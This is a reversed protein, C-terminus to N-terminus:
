EKAKEKGAPEPIADPAVRLTVQFGFDKKVAGHFSERNGLWLPDLAADPAFEASVIGCPLLTHAHAAAIFFRQQLTLKGAPVVLSVPGAHDNVSLDEGGAVTHPEVGITVFATNGACVCATADSTEATGFNWECFGSRHSRLAGFERAELILRVPRAAAPDAFSIEFDQALDFQMSAASSKIPHAGAMVAGTMVAVVTDPTPQSVQIIGSGTHTYGYRVPAVHGRRPGLVITVPVAAPPEPRAIALGAASAALIMVFILFKVRFGFVDAKDATWGLNIFRLSAITIFRGEQSSFEHFLAIVHGGGFESSM